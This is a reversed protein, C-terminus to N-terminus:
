VERLEVDGDGQRVLARLSDPTEVLVAEGGPSERNKLVVDQCVVTGTRTPEEHRSHGVIQPPADAPLNDFGLWLPGADPGKVDGEGGRLDIGADFMPYGHYIDLVADTHEDEDGVMPGLREAARAAEDNVAAPDVGDQQGAHSYTYGYGEYAVALDGAVIDDYLERRRQDSVEDCFWRGGDPDNPLLCFWEHNGLHYRVRGEPAEARLRELLALCGASDPGRDVADGNFVLVYDNGAWHLLGDAREEVVPDVGAHDSLTLLASRFRDLHGHVDSLSVITPTGPLAAVSDRRTPDDHEDSM